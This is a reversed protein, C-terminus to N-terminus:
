LRTVLVTFDDTFPNGETFRMVDKKTAMIFDHITLHHNKEIFEVFRWEDYQEGNV